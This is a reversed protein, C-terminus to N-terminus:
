ASARTHRLPAQASNVTSTVDTPGNRLAARLFLINMICTMMYFLM